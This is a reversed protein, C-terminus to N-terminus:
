KAWKKKQAYLKLILYCMAENEIKVELVMKFAKNIPTPVVKIDEDIDGQLPAKSLGTALFAYRKWDLSQGTNALNFLKLKKAKLGTEERLERQAAKIPRENKGVRGIPLRWLYRKYKVRYERTLLM